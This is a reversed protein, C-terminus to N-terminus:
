TDVTRRRTSRFRLDVMEERCGAKTKFFDNGIAFRSSSKAKKEPIRAGTEEAAGGDEQEEEAVAQLTEDVQAPTEKSEDDDSSLSSDSDESVDDFRYEFFHHSGENLNTNTRARTRM